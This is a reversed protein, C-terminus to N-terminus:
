RIKIDEVIKRSDNAEQEDDKEDRQKKTPPPSSPASKAHFLNACTLTLVVVSGLLATLTLESLIIEM